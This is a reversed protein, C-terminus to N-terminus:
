KIPVLIYFISEPDDMGRYSEDYLEFSNIGRDMDPIVEGSTMSFSFVETYFKEVADSSMIGKFRFKAYRGGPITIKKAQMEKLLPTGEKVCANYDFEQTDLQFNKSVGFAYIIKSYDISDMLTEWMDNLIKNGKKNEPTIHNEIGFCDTAEFEIIEFDM